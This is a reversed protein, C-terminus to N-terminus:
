GRVSVTNSVSARVKPAAEAQGQTKVHRTLTNGKMTKKRYYFAQMLLFINATSFGNNDIEDTLQCRCRPTLSIRRVRDTEM